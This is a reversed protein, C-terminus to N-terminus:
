YVGSCSRILICVDKPKKIYSVRGNTVRIRKGIFDEIFGVKLSVYMGDNFVVEQGIKLDRGIVDKM